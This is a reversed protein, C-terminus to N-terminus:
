VKINRLFEAAEDPDTNIVEGGTGLEFGGWIAIRPNIELHWHYFNYDHEADTPPTHIFFNYSPNGLGYFIKALSVRLAEAFDKLELNNAEEFFVLHNKPFIRIEYSFRPVYPMLAVFNDNEFIIRKKEKLEWEIIDCHVCRKREIKYIASGSLSRSIDSPIFPIALIQSHPHSVSAGAERGHNHIILIYNACEKNKLENYRDYYVSVIEFVSKIDM